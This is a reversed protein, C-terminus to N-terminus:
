LRSKVDDGLRLPHDRAQAPMPPLIKPQRWEFGLPRWRKRDIRLLLHIRAVEATLDAIQERLDVITDKEKAIVVRLERVEDQLARERPTPKIKPTPSQDYAVAAGAQSM